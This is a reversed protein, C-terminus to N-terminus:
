AMKIKVLNICMNVQPFPIGSNYNRINVSSNGLLAATFTIHNQNNFYSQKQLKRFTSPFHQFNYNEQQRRNGYSLVM